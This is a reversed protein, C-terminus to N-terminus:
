KIIKAKRLGKELGQKKLTRMGKTSIAINVTKKLSPIFIKKKQMNVSKRNKGTPNFKTARVRNSYGGGVCGIKKNIPCKKTMNETYYCM